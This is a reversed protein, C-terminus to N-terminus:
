KGYELSGPDIAIVSGSEGVATALVATMDGQGCGVELVLDGEKIDWRNVLEIRERTQGIQVNIAALSETHLLCKSAIKEADLHVVM